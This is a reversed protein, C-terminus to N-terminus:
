SRQIANIVDYYFSFFGTVKNNMKTKRKKMEFKKLECCIVSIKKKIKLNKKKTKKETIKIDIMEKAVLVCSEIILPFIKV